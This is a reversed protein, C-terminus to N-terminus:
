VNKISVAKIQVYVKKGQCIKLRHLSLSTIRALLQDGACDIRLTAKLNKDVDIDMVIGTIVNLISTDDAKSLCLSVDDARIGLRVKHGIAFSGQLQFRNGAQTQITTLRYDSDHKIVVGELMAAANREHSLPSAMDVLATHIDGCFVVRGREMVLVQDCLRSVEQLSHSVYLIPISLEDHLKELFPLIELKRSEDLSALPEDMLLVEPSKLLARAIAVRQQEGGSLDHPKRQLLHGIGLLELLHERNVLEDAAGLQSHRCSRKLGYELNHEVSKHVFLRSDQFVYGLNRQHTPTSSNQTLWSHGNLMIQGTTDSELGAICRLLTTKGSGSSGFIGLVGRSPISFSAHLTFDKRQLSIDCHGASM